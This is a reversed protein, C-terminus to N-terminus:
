TGNGSSLGHLVDWRWVNPQSEAGTASIVLVVCHQENVNKLDEALVLM